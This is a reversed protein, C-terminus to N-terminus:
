GWFYIKLCPSLMAVSKSFCIRRRSLRKLHTRLTLNKREIHNTGRYKTSHIKNPILSRYNVLKDTYIRQPHSNILSNMVLSIDKNTRRGVNFVVVDKNMTNIAYIVWIPNIKSGVFTYLEDAEFSQGSQIEPMKIRSAITRIKRVVKVASIKLIRGISRIGCGEKLLVKIKNDIREAPLKKTYVDIFTKCCEKCRFRQKGGM